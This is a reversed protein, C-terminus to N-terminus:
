HVTIRKVSGKLFAHLEVNQHLRVQFIKELSDKWFQIRMLGITKESVTDEIKLFLALDIIIM